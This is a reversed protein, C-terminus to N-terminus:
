QIENKIEKDIQDMFSRLYDVAQQVTDTIYPLLKQHQALFQNNPLKVIWLRNNDIPSEMYFGYFSGKDNQLTELSIADSEYANAADIYFVPQSCDSEPAAPNYQKVLEELQAQEQPTFPINM